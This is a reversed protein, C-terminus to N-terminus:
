YHTISFVAQWRHQKTATNSFNYDTDLQVRTIQPDSIFEAMANKVRENLVMADYLSQGYSQIAINTTIIHNQRSSGTQDIRVYNTIQEPAEMGVYVGLSETLYSILKTIIM